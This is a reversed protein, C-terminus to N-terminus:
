GHTELADIQKNRTSSIHLLRQPDPERHPLPSSPSPTSSRLYNHHKSPADVWSVLNYRKQGEWHAHLGNGLRM